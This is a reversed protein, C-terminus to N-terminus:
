LGIKGYEQLMQRTAASLKSDEGLVVFMVDAQICIDLVSHLLTDGGTKQTIELLEEVQTRVYSVHYSQLDLLIRPQHLIRRVGLKVKHEALMKGFATVLVPESMLSYADLEIYLRQSVAGGASALIKAARSNFDDQALSSLSVRMVLRETTHNELWHLALEIARLDCEGSLGLRTAVPMFQYGLLVDGQTRTPHLQLIAEHWQKSKFEVSTLHLSLGNNVLADQILTRWQSEGGKPQEGQADVQDSSLYEVMNHGASEARMLAQDLRSLVHALPQGPKFDTEAMAWRCFQSNPLQIRQDRLILQASKILRQMTEADVGTAMVVFDSGNLRALTFQGRTTEFSNLLTQLQGSLSRLWEDVNNRAMVRNIEALDRQRFLFLWGSLGQSAELHRRLENVLYKRNVLGTVADQNLEVQLSEIKANQEETTALINERATVIAQRVEKLEDFTAKKQPSPRPAGGADQQSLSRLQEAVEEHLVRRLWRMLFLVFLAWLAGAGLVWAVMGVFSQWLTERAYTADAKLYLEGVQRWGDSVQAGSEAVVVPFIRSFWAPAVGTGTAETQRRFLEKGEADNLQIQSFQGSDFQAMIILEQTIPDQNAQQSLTLALSTAASDTQAQLQTNLYSRASDMSLWVIGTLILLIALSVSILLQKLLSM